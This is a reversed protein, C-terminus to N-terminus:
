RRRAARSWTDAMRTLKRNEARIDFLAMVVSVGVIFGAVVLIQAINDGITATIKNIVQTAAGTPFISTDM